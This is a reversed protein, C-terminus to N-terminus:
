LKMNNRIINVYSIAERLMDSSTNPRLKMDIIKDYVIAQGLLKIYKEKVIINARYELYTKPLRNARDEVPYSLDFEEADDPELDMEEGIKTM